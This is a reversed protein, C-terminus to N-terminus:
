IFFFFQKGELPDKKPNKACILQSYAAQYGPNDDVEPLFDDGNVTNDQPLEFFEILSALLKPYFINYSSEIMAPCDTLINSIGVAAIKREIDGSVKQLDAIIVREVVMGFM